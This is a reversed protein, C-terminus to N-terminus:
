QPILSLKGGDERYREGYEAVLWDRRDPAISL